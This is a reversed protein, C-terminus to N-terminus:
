LFQLLFCCLVAEKHTIHMCISGKKIEVTYVEYTLIQVNKLLLLLSKRITFSTPFFLM